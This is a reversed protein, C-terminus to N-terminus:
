FCAEQVYFPRSANSDHFYWALVCKNRSLRLAFRDGDNGGGDDDDDDDRL